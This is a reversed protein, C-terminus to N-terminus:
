STHIPLLNTLSSLVLASGFLMWFIYVLFFFPPLIILLSITKARGLKLLANFVAVQLYVFWLSVIGLLFDWGGSAKSFLACPGTFILPLFGWGSLVLARKLEVPASRWSSLYSILWAISYWLTLNAIVALAVSAFHPSEGHAIYHAEAAILSALFVVLLSSLVWSRDINVRSSESIERFTAGPATLVNLFTAPFSFFVDESTSPPEELQGANTM